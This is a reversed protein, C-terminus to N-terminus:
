GLLIPLLVGLGLALVCLAPAPTADDVRSTVASARHRPALTIEEGHRRELWLFVLATTAGYVLHGILSPLAAGAEDISWDYKQGRFLAFLTLQGLFWWVLGYVLGWAVALGASSAERSFLVGYIMGIVVSLVLHVLWGILASDSGVLQAVYPLIGTDLMPLSFLLGGAFGAVAGWALSLVTRTGTGERERLLPDSEFFFAVWVRDVAAYVLGMLLGFFVHGVLLGFQQAAFEASWDLPQHNALRLLTLPGIFWWLMGYALGWGMCSGLGRVDRQFLVGFSAGIVASVGLHVLTPSTGGIMGQALPSFEREAGSHAFVWGGAIGAIGGVVLARALSHRSREVPRSRAGLIGLVVGLPLGFFLLYTVLEAFHERGSGLSCLGEDAGHAFMGAPGALWLLFAFALGWVLGAGASYARSWAIWAFAAGYLAGCVPGTIWTAHGLALAACGGALGVAACILIRTTTPVTTSV